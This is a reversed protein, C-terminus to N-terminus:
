IIVTKVKLIFIFVLVTYYILKGNVVNKVVSGHLLTLLGHLLHSLPLSDAQWHLLRLLCLNSGQTPFIGQLLFHCSPGNNKGPYDWPCLFRAPQLGHSQLSNSM